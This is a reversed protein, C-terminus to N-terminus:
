FNLKEMKAFDLVASLIINFDEPVIQCNDVTVISMFHIKKHMGLTLPGDKIENGFTYEMKNRYGYVDPTPNIGLYELPKVNNKELLDLLEAEKIKLQESYYKGQFTCGRLPSQHQSNNLSISIIPAFTRNRPLKNKQNILCLQVQM